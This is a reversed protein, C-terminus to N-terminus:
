TNIFLYYNIFHVGKIPCEAFLVAFITIIKRIVINEALEQIYLFYKRFKHRIHFSYNQRSTTTSPQIRDGFTDTFLQYGYEILRHYVIRNRHEHQGSDPIDKYNGCRLIKGTELTQEFVATLESYMKFIGLLRRRITKCLSENYTFFENTLVVYTHHQTVIDEMSGSKSSNEPICNIKHLGLTLCANETILYAVRLSVAHSFEILFSVAEANFFFRLM